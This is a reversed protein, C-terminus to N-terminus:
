DEKECNIERHLTEAERAVDSEPIQRRCRGYIAALKQPSMRQGSNWLGLFLGALEELEQDGLSAKGALVSYRQHAQSQKRKRRRCGVCRVADAELPLKLTEFWYKQEKAYFIFDRQCDRCQKLVDYYYAFSFM